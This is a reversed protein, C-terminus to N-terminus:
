CPRKWKGRLRGPGRYRIEGETGAAVPQEDEGVIRIGVGPVPRGDSSAVRDV